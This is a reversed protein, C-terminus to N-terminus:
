AVGALFKDGGENGRALVGVSGSDDLVGDVVADVSGAADHGVVEAPVALAHLRVRSVGLAAALVGAALSLPSATRNSNARLRNTKKGTM